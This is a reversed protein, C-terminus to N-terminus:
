RWCRSEARFGSTNNDGGVLYVFNNLLAIGMNSMRPASDAGGLNRWEEWSPHFVQFRGDNDALVGSSFIGGFGLICHCNSRPQSLPTQMVPQWLKNSHYHLATSISNRLQCPELHSYLRQLAAQEMLCFRVAEMLRM